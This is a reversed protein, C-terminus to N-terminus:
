KHLQFGSGPALGERMLLRRLPGVKGALYMGASRAAQVPLFATLLSRNLLDVASPRSQIDGLRKKEYAALVPEAGIDSHSRGASSL